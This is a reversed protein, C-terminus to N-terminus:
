SAGDIIRVETGPRLNAAGELVVRDGEELGSDVLWDNGIARSVVVPRTQLKNEADVISVTAAGKRDRAVAQQPLLIADPDVGQDVEARVYMGPLLLGDPNPFVARLAVSGTSPDVAVEALELRGEQAFLSGDELRLRVASAGDERQMRGSQLARRLRLLEGSSQSLDVYIPDLQSVTTLAEPQSASVLAGPTVLSRGTRGAIPSAVRTWQLNIRAANDAARALRVRAQAQASAAAANDYDQQSITGEPLLKAYRQEQLAALRAAAEADALSAAQQEAAAAFPAPDIEYLVQGAKVTAGENFLRKRIIGSVQPRIEAIAYAATRGPLEGHLPVPAPKVTRVVVEPAQAEAAPPGAADCGTLAWALGALWPLALQRLSPRAADRRYRDPSVPAEHAIL